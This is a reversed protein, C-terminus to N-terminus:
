ENGGPRFIHAGLVTLYVTDNYSYDVTDSTEVFLVGAVTEIEYMVAGGLYTSALVTGEITGPAGKDSVDIDKYRVVVEVEASVQLDVANFEGITIPDSLGSVAVVCKTEDIDALSGRLFNSRGIFRASFLNSPKHYIQRPEAIQQPVGASMLVIRDSVAMAEDQDHTVYIITQNFKRQVDKLEFRMKDRLKADLNSLPEDLLLVDPEMVLARGLAVRQQQGGSLESPNKREQGKLNLLSVVRDVQEAVQDTSHNRVKLPYAINDFVNMHPWVAYSQFVMGLNRKEPPVFINKEPSTVIRDGIAIEGANIKFFGAISRLLTTKGCGSPGLLTLFEGDAVSLSFDHVAIFNDYKKVLNQIRIEAM